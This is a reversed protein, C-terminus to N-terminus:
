RAATDRVFPGYRARVEAREQGGEGPSRRGVSVRDGRSAPTPVDFVWVVLEALFRVPSGKLGGDGFEAYGRSAAWAGTRYEFEIRSLAYRADLIITGAVDTVGM